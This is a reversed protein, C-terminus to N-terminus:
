NNIITEQELQSASKKRFLLVSFLSGIFFGIFLYMAFKLKTFDITNQIGSYKSLESFKELQFNLQFIRFQWMLIGCGIILSPVILAQKGNKLHALKDVILYFVPISGIVLSFILYQSFQGTMTTSNMVVSGRDLQNISIAYFYDKILFGVVIFLLTLAFYKLISKM